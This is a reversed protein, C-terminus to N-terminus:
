RFSEPTTNGWLLRRANKDSCEQQTHSATVPDFTMNNISICNDASLTEEHPSLFPDVTASKLSCLTFLVM